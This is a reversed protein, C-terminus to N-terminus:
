RMGIEKQSEQYTAKSSIEQNWNDSNHPVSQQIGSYPVSM